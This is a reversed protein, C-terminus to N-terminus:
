DQDSQLYDEYETRAMQLQNEAEIKDLETITGENEWTWETMEQVDVISIKWTVGDTDTPTWATRGEIRVSRQDGHKNEITKKWVKTATAQTNTVSIPTTDKM